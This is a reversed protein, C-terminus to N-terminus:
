EGGDNRLGPPRVGDWSIPRVGSGFNVGLREQFTPCFKPLSDVGFVSQDDDAAILLLRRLANKLADGTAKVVEKGDRGVASGPVQIVRVEGSDGDELSVELLVDVIADHRDCSVM